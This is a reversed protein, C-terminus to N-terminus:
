PLHRYCIIKKRKVCTAVYCCTVKYGTTMSKFVQEIQLALERSPVIIVAQTHSKGSGIISFATIFIGANERFRYLLTIYHGTNSKSAEITALQMENLKEIKLGALIKEISYPEKQM